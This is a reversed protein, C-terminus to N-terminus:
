NGTKVKLRFTQQVISQDRVGYVDDAGVHGMVLIRGDPLQRACPYYPSGPLGLKAWHAGADATWWIGDTAVHLVVGETTKLVEPFGSHPFPAKTPASVEWKKGQPRAISQWRDSHLYNEGDFHETRHVFLLEGHELEAFDSEECVGIAAPMLWVPPGWNRGGDQSEFMAKLLKPNPQRGAEREWVGAFLILRGDRLRRIVTPWTKYRQPNSLFIPPSWSRGDDESRQIYGTDIGGGAWLGTVLTGDPLAALGHGCFSSDAPATYIGNTSALNKRAPVERLVSWTAADDPSELLVTVNTRQQPNEVPGTVQQFALRLHGNKGRWLTCWATYGPKEPSHYITKQTFDTAAMEMACMQFGGAGLAVGTALAGVRSRLRKMTSNM